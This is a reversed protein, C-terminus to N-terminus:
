LLLRLHGCKSNYFEPDTEEDARCGSTRPFRKMFRDLDVENCSFYEEESSSGGGLQASEARQKWQRAKDKAKRSRSRERQLAEVLSEQIEEKERTLEAIRLQQKKLLQLVGESAAKRLSVTIPPGPVDKGGNVKTLPSRPDTEWASDETDSPALSVALPRGVNVPGARGGQAARHVVAELLERRLDGEEVVVCLRTNREQAELEELPQSAKLRREECEVGCVPALPATSLGERAKQTAECELKFLFGCRYANAQEFEEELQRIEEGLSAKAEQLKRAQDELAELEVKEKEIRQLLDARREDKERLWMTFQNANSSEYVGETPHRYPPQGRDLQIRVAKQLDSWRSDLDELVRAKM